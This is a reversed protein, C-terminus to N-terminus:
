IELFRKPAREPRKFTRGADSWLGIAGEFTGNRQKTV